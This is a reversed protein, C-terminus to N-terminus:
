AVDLGNKEHIQLRRALLDPTAEDGEDEATSFIRAATKAVREYGRVLNADDTIRGIAWRSTSIATFPQRCELIVSGHQARHGYHLQSETSRSRIDARGM